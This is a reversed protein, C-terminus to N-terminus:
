CTIKSLIYAENLFKSLMYQEVKNSSNLYMILKYMSPRCRYFRKIYKMRLNKYHHCIFIFHFDDEIDGNNCLECYRYQREIREREYRCTQIKLSHFSVRIKTFASRLIKTSVSNELYPELRVHEKISNHLILVHSSHIHTRWEQIYVDSIFVNTSTITAPNEWVQLFM